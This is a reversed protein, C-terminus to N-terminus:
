NKRFKRRFGALGILGFGFLLMTNPEPILTTTDTKYNVGTIAGSGELKLVVRTASPDGTALSVSIPDIRNASNEGFDVDGASQSVGQYDRFDIETPGNETFIVAGIETGDLDILDFGFETIGVDFTFIFQAGSADDDPNSFIDLQDAGNFNGGGEIDGFSGGLKQRYLVKGVDTGVLNGTTWDDEDMIGIPNTLDSKDRMLDADWTDTDVDGANSDFIAGFVPQNGNKDKVELTVTAGPTTFQYSTEGTDDTTLIQGHNFGSLDLMDANALGMGAFLLLVASLMRFILKRIIRKNM